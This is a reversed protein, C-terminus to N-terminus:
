ADCNAREVATILDARLVTVRKGEIELVCKTDYNWHSSVTIHDGLKTKESDGDIEYITVESTTKLKSM